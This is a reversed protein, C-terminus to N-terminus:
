KRTALPGPELAPRPQINWMAFINQRMENPFIAAIQAFFCLIARIRFNSSTQGTVGILM